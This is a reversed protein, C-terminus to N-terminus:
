NLISDLRDVSFSQPPAGTTGAGTTGAGTTGAGTTGTGTGTGTGSNNPGPVLNDIMQQDRGSIEGYGTVSNRFDNLDSELNNASPLNIDSIVNAAFLAANDIGTALSEIITDQDSRVAYHIISQAFYSRVGESRLLREILWIAASTLIFTLAGTFLGGVGFGAAAGGAAAVATATLRLRKAWRVLGMIYRIASTGTVVLAIIEASWMAVKSVYAAAVAREFYRKNRDYHAQSAFDEGDRPDTLVLAEFGRHYAQLIEGFADSEAQTQEWGIASMVGFIMLNRFGRNVFRRHQQRLENHEQLVRNLRQRKEPTMEADRERIRREVEADIEEATPARRPSPEPDATRRNNAPTTGRRMRDRAEEADGDSPYIITGPARRGTETDIIEFGGEIRRIDLDERIIDYIKM